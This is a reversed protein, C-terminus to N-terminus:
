WRGTPTEGRPPILTPVTSSAAEEFSPDMCLFDFTEMGADVRGFNTVRLRGSIYTGVIAGGSESTVTCTMGTRVYTTLTITCGTAGEGERIRGAWMSAGLVHPDAGCDTVAWSPATQAILSVDGVDAGLGITTDTRPPILRAAERISAQERLADIQARAGREAVHAQVIMVVLFGLMGGRVLWAILGARKWFRERVEAKTHMPASRLLKDNDTM